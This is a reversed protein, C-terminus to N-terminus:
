VGFFAGLSLMVVGSTRRGLDTDTHGGGADVGVYFGVPSEPPALMVKGHFGVHVGSGMADGNGLIDIHDMLVFAGLVAHGKNGLPLVAGGSPKIYLALGSERDPDDAQLAPSEGFGVDVGGIGGFGSLNTLGVHVGPAFAVSAPYRSYTTLDDSVPIMPSDWISFLAGVQIRLLPRLQKKQKKELEEVRDLLDNLNEQHVRLVQQTTGQLDIMAGMDRQLKGIASDQSEDVANNAAVADDIRALEAKLAELETAIANFEEESISGEREALKRYIEQIMRRNERAYDDECELSTGSWMLGDICDCTNTAEVWCTARGAAIEAACADQAPTTKVPTPCIPLPAAGAPIAPPPVTTASPPTVTPTTAAPAAPAPTVTAPPTTTTQAVATFTTAMFLFSVLIMAFNRM